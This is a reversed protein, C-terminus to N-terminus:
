RTNVAILAGCASSADEPHVHDPWGKPETTMEQTGYGMIARLNESVFTCAFDGSAKTTYIIAPSVALLYQLRQRTGKLEKAIVKRESEFAELDSIRQRLLSIEDVLQRKTKKEDESASPAPFEQKARGARGEAEYM